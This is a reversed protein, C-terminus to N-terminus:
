LVTLQGRFSYDYGGFSPNLDEWYLPDEPSGPVLTKAACFWPNSGLLFMGYSGSYPSYFGLKLTWFNDLDSDEPFNFFSLVFSHLLILTSIFHFLLFTSVIFGVGCLLSLLLLQGLICRFNPVYPRLNFSQIGTYSSNLVLSNPTKSSIHLFISISPDFSLPQSTTSM